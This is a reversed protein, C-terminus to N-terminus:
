GDWWISTTRVISDFANKFWVIVYDEVEIRVVCDVVDIRNTLMNVDMIQLV